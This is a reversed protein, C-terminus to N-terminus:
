PIHRWSRRLVAERITTESVKYQSALANWDIGSAAALRIAVVDNPKLKANPVRGGHAHRGKAMADHMNDAMTGDELHAPRVCPPNDCRHLANLPWRGLAFYLSMRHARVVRGEFMFAGYAEGQKAGMWVWCPGLDNSITPGIEVMRWFRQAPPRQDRRKGIPDDLLSQQRLRARYEKNRQNSCTRCTIRGNKESYDHDMHRLIATKSM